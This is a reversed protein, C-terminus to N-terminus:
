CSCLIKVIILDGKLSYEFDCAGGDSIILNDKWNKILITHEPDIWYNAVLIFAEEISYDKLYITTISAKEPIETIENNGNSYKRDLKKYVGDKNPTLDNNYITDIVYNQDILLRFPLSNDILPKEKLLYQDILFGSNGTKLNLVKVWNGYLIYPETNDNSYDGSILAKVKINFKISTKQKVVVENGFPLIEVLKSNISPEKWLKLGNKAWVFLTDGLHYQDISYIHGPLGLVLFLLVFRAKQQLRM